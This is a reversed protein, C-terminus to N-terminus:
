SSVHRGRAAFIERAGRGNGLSEDDPHALVCMLRFVAAAPAQRSAEVHSVCFTFALGVALISRLCQTM